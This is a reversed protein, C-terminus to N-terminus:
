PCSSVSPFNRPRLSTQVHFNPDSSPTPEVYLDLTVRLLTVQTDCSFVPQSPSNQVREILTQATGWTSTDDHFVARRLETGVHTYRVTMFQANPTQAGVALCAGAAHGTCAGQPAWTISDAGRVEKEIKQVANRVDNITESQGQTFIGANMSNVLFIAATALVISGLFGTVAMEAVTLGSEDRLHIRQLLGSIRLM